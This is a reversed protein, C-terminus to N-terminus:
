ASDVIRSGTAPMAQGTSGYLAPKNAQETLIALIEATNRLHMDVLGVNLEHLTKAERSLILLKQWNVAANTDGTNQALWTDMTGRDSPNGAQGITAMRAGELANLQEVLRAKASSIEPLATAAAEKLCAQEDNLVAIFRSILEIEREIIGSIGSM